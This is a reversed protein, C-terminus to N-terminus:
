KKWEVLKGQNDRLFLSGENNSLDLRFERMKRPKLIGGFVIKERGEGRIEWDTINCDFYCDNKIFKKSVGITICPACKQESPECLNIEKKICREWAKELDESYKDKGKYFYYNGLGNELIKININSHNYLIYALTRYYKDQRDGVFELTVKQNLIKEELFKTSEEFYFEGREPCNIGLLRVVEDNELVITDGDIIRTVNIEKDKILFEEIKLDLLPYNTLLLIILLFILLYIEKKIHVMFFNHSFSVSTDVFRLRGGM